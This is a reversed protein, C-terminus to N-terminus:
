AARTAVPAVPTKARVSALGLHARLVREVRSPYEERQLLLAGEIVADAHAAEAVLHAQLRTVLPLVVVNSLVAGYLTTLVAIGLGPGIAAVSHDTLGRLLLALGILTGILGFAPFLKGLTVLVHRADEGVAARKRAEGLLLAELEEADECEVAAIAAHRVLPDPEAAAARELARIGKTRHLRALTVLSAVLATGDRRPALAARVEAWAARMRAHSFTTWAVALPGGITILLATPDLFGTAAALVVVATTAVLAAVLPRLPRDSGASTRM